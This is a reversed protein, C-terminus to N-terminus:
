RESSDREELVAEVALAPVSRRAPPQKLLDPMKGTGPKLVGSRTLRLRRTSRRESDDLPGRSSSRVAQCTYFRRNTAAAPDAVM